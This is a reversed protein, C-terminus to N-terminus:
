SRVQQVQQSTDNVRVPPGINVQIEMGPRIGLHAIHPLLQNVLEIANQETLHMGHPVSVSGFSGVNVPHGPTPNSMAGVRQTQQQMRQFLAGPSTPPADHSVNGAANGVVSPVPMGGADSRAPAQSPSGAPTVPPPIGGLAEAIQCQQLSLISFIVLFGRVPRVGRMM